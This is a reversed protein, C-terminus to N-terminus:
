KRLSSKLNAYKARVEASPKGLGVNSQQLGQRVNELVYLKYKLEEITM